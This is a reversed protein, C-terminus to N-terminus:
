RKLVKAAEEMKSIMDKRRDEHDIISDFMNVGEPATAYLLFYITYLEREKTLGRVDYVIGIGDVGLYGGYVSFSNVDFSLSDDFVLTVTHRTNYSLKSLFYDALKTGFDSLKITVPAAIITDADFSLSTIWDKWCTVRVNYLTSLKAQAVTVSDDPQYPEASHIESVSGLGLTQVGKIELGYSCCCRALEGLSIVTESDDDTDVVGYKAAAYRVWPVGSQPEVIYRSIFLM